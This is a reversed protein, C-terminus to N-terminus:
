GKAHALVDELKNYDHGSQLANPYCGFVKTEEGTDPDTESETQVAVATCVGDKVSIMAQDFVTMQDVYILMVSRLKALADSETLITQPVSVSSFDSYRFRYDGSLLSLDIGDTDMDRLASQAAQYLTTAFMNGAANDARDTYGATVSSKEKETDGCATLLPISLLVATMGCFIRYIRKM